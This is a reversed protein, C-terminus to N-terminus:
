GQCIKATRICMTRVRYRFPLVLIWEMKAIAYCLVAQTDSVDRLWSIVLSSDGAKYLHPCSGGYASDIKIGSQTYTNNNAPARDLSCAVVTVMLLFVFSKRM